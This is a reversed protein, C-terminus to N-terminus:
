ELDEIVASVGGSDFVRGDGGVTLGGEASFGSSATKDPDPPSGSLQSTILCLGPQVLPRCPLLLLGKLPLLGKLLGAILSNCGLLVVLAEDVSTVVISVAISVVVSGCRVTESWLGKYVGDPFSPLVVIATEVSWIDFSSISKYSSNLQLM